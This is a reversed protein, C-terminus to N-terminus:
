RAYELEEVFRVGAGWYMYSYGDPWSGVSAKHKLGTELHGPARECWGGDTIWGGPGISEGCIYGQEIRWLARARKSMARVEGLTLWSGDRARWYQQENENNTDM